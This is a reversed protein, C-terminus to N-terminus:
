PRAPNLRQRATRAADTGPYQDVVAQLTARGVSNEKMGLQSLGLKLMGGPTKDHTPYREVLVRFQEAALPYNGTVYYSEGLWYLANPAYPGNPYRALFDGFQRSADVYEGAKLANLATDYAAKEDATAPVPAAPPKTSTAPVSAGASAADVPADGPLELVPPPQNAAELRQLRTDVDLYQTRASRATEENQHQLEEIQARLTSVEARLEDIQKLLELTPSPANAQQELATVRDAVSQRRQAEAGSPSMLGLALVSLLLLSHAKM